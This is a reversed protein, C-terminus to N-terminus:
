FDFEPTKKTVLKRYDLALKMGAFQGWAKLLEDTERDFYLRVETNLRSEYRKELPTCDLKFHYIYMRVPGVLHIVNPEGLHSVISERLPLVRDSKRLASLDARVRREKRNINASGIARLTLEIYEAPMMKLFLPSFSAAFLKQQQNFLFEIMLESKPEIVVGDKDLQYFHYRIRTSEATQTIDNSRLKSLTLVDKKLMVPKNFFLSFREGVEVRFFRDFDNLQMKVELLRLYVCGSTLLLLSLLLLWKLPQRATSTRPQKM